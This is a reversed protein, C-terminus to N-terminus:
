GYTDFGICFKNPSNAYEGPWLIAIPIRHGPKGQPLKDNQVRVIFCDFLESDETISLIRSGEPLRLAQVLIDHHFQVNAQRYRQEGGALQELHAMSNIDPQRLNYEALSDLDPESPLDATGLKVGDVGEAKLGAILADLEADAPNIAHLVKGVRASPPLVSNGACQHGATPDYDADCFNCRTM